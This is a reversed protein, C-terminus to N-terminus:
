FRDEPPTEVKSVLLGGTKGPSAADAIFAVVPTTVIALVPVM